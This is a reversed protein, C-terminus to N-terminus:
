SKLGLSLITDKLFQILDMARYYFIAESPTCTCLVQSKQELHLV